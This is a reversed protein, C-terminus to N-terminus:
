ICGAISFALWDGFICLLLAFFGGRFGYDELCIGVFVFQMALFVFIAIGAAIALALHIVEGGALLGLM